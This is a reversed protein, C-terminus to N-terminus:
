GTASGSRAKDGELMWINHDDKATEDVMGALTVPLNGAERRWAHPWACPM